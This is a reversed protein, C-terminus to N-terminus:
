LQGRTINLGPRFTNDPYGTIAGLTTLAQVHPYFWDSPCVDTFREGGCSSKPAASASPSNAGLLLFCALVLSTLGLVWLGSFRVKQMPLPTVEVPASARAKPAPM